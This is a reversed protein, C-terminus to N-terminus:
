GWRDELKDAYRGRKGCFFKDQDRELRYESDVSYYDDDYDNDDYDNVLELKTHEMEKVEELSYFEEGIKYYTQCVQRELKPKPRTPIIENKLNLWVDMDPIDMYEEMGRYRQKCAEFRLKLSHQYETLEPEEGYGPIEMEEEDFGKFREIAANFRLEWIQENTLDTM